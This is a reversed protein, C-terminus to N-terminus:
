DARHHRLEQTVLERRVPWSIVYGGLRRTDLRPHPRASDCPFVPVGRRALM